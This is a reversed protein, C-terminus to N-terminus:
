GFGERGQFRHRIRVRRAGPQKLPQAAIFFRDGLMEDRDRCVRGFHGIETDIGRVHETEPIPYAPAIRHVRRDAEGGHQGDPRVIESGHQVAKVLHVFM